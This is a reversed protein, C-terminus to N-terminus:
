SVRNIFGKGAHEQPTTKHTSWTYEKSLPPEVCGFPMYLSLLGKDEGGAELVLVSHGHEALRTAVVGGASGAGVILSRCLTLYFM